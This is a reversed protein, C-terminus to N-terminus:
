AKSESQRNLSERTIEGKVYKRITDTADTISTCVVALYGEENLLALLDIQEPSLEGKSGRKLEIRLGAFDKTVIDITLDPYGPKVGMKKFKVAEILNRDGGNPTHHIYDFVTKNKYRIFHTENIIAIQMKYEYVLEVKYLKTGGNKSGDNKTGKVPQVELATLRRGKGRSRKKLAM